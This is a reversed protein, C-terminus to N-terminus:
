IVNFDDDTFSDGGQHIYTLCKVNTDNVTRQWGVIHWVDRQANPQNLPISYRRVFILRKDRGLRVSFQPYGPILPRLIFAILRGQDIDSFLFLTEGDTELLSTGDNYIAEWMWLDHHQPHPHAFEFEHGAGAIADTVAETVGPQMESRM